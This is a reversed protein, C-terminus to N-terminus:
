FYPVQAYGILYKLGGVQGSGARSKEIGLGFGGAKSFFDEQEKRSM